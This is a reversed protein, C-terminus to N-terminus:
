KCIRSKLGSIKTKPIRQKTTPVYQIFSDYLIYARPGSPGSFFLCAPPLSRRRRDSLDEPGTTDPASRQVSKSLFDNCLIFIDRFGTNLIVPPPPFLIILSARFGVNLKKGGDSPGFPGLFLSLGALWLGNEPTQVYWM